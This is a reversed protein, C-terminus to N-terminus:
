PSWLTPWKSRSRTSTGHPHQKPELWTGRGSFQSCFPQHWEDVPKKAPYNKDTKVQRDRSKVEIADTRIAFGLIYVMM